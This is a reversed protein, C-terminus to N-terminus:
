TIWIKYIKKFLRFCGYRLLIPDVNRWIQVIVPYFIKTLAPSFGNADGHGGTPTIARGSARIRPGAVKGARIADRLSFIAENAGGVDQVTTFGALLTRRAHLAGDLAADVESDSLAKMRSTPSFENTLHVHSDILGPLVYGNRMNVVRAGAPHRKFGAEVSVIKGDEITVTQDSLYGQGPVALLKGAEIVTVDQAAAWGAAGVLATMAIVARRLSGKM